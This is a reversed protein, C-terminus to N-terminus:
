KAGGGQRALEEMLENEGWHSLSRGIINLLRQGSVTFSPDARGQILRHYLMERYAYRPNKFLTYFIGGKFDFANMILFSIDRLTADQAPAKKTWGKSVAMDYAAATADAGYLQPPLLEAAGLIFRSATEMNVTETELLAGLEAATQSFLLAPLLFLISILIKRRM